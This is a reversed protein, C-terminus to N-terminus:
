ESHADGVRLAHLITREEQDNDLPRYDFIRDYSRDGLDLGVGELAEDSFGMIGHGAAAIAILRHLLFKHCCLVVIRAVMGGSSHYHGSSDYHATDVAAVMEKVCRDGTLQVTATRAFWGKRCGQVNTDIVRVHLLGVLFRGKEVERTQGKGKRYDGFLGM